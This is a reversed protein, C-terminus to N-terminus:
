PTVMGAWAACAAVLGIADLVELFHSAICGKRTILWLTAIIVTGIAHGMTWRLRLIQEAPMHFIVVDITFGVILSVGALLALLKGFFAIREQVFNCGAATDLGSGRLRQWMPGVFGPKAM